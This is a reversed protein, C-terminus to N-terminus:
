SSHIQSSTKSSQLHVESLGDDKGNKVCHLHFCVPFLLFSSASPWSSISFISLFYLPSLLCMLFPFYFPYPGVVFHMCYTGLTGCHRDGRRFQAGWGREQLRTNVGGGGAGFWLPPVDEGAPLLTLFDWNPRSSFFSPVRDVRHLLSFFFTGVSHFQM